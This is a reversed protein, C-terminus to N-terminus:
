RVEFTVREDTSHKLFNNYIIPKEAKLRTQDLRDVPVLMLKATFSTGPLEGGVHDLRDKVMEKVHEDITKCHKAVPKLRAALDILEPQSLKELKKVFGEMIDSVDILDLNMTKKM